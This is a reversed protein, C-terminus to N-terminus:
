GAAEAPAVSIEGSMLRPLLYDRTEALTRAELAGARIREFIPEAFTDFAALVPGPAVPIPISKVSNSNVATAISSTSGLTSFDFGKMWCFAFWASPSDARAQLQAIAENSYMTGVTLAIRGVTLKFSVVVSRDPIPPVRFAQIARATLDESTAFIFTGCNGMDRISMWPEGSGGPVFHASEKRPPTRGIKVDFAEGVTSRGFGPPLGDVGFSSPFLAALETAKVTEEVVGGMIEVPVTAGALKRRVPGFDVFWDRFIAQAMAELTENTRRNLEIKSDLADLIDAIPEEAEGLRPIQLAKLVPIRVNSVTSGTGENWFIQHRVAPSRLAYFLYRPNVDASPRLLVQRQGVCCELDEPVVCVEGMPAERTFIIDGPKPKARRIRHLYDTENTYSRESLDLRGDRINQNRIVLYGSSTWEPTSHPCDIVLECM